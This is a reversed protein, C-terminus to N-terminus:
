GEGEQAEWINDNTAELRIFSCTSREWHLSIDTMPGRRNKVCELKANTGDSSRMLYARDACYEIAGSDKFSALGLGAYSSAGARADKTRAVASLAIVAVGQRSIARLTEAIAGTRVRADDGGKHASIMQLYDCLLVSFPRERYALAIDALANGEIFRLRQLIPAMEGRADTLRNEVGKIDRDIIRQYSVNSCRSLLREFTEQAGMETSLVLAYLSENHLLCDYILQMAMMSKGSGPAGGIITLEGPRIAIVGGAFTAPPKGSMLEAFSEATLSALDLAAM